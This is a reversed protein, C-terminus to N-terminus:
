KGVAESTHSALWQFFEDIKFIMWPVVAMGLVSSILTVPLTGWVSSNLIDNLENVILLFSGPLCQLFFELVAELAVETWNVLLSHEDLTPLMEYVHEGIYYIWNYAYQAVMPVLIVTAALHVVVRLLVNGFLFMMANQFQVKDLTGSNDADMKRFLAQCRERDLPKCAAPGLHMGLELHVLLLGLYLENEDVCGSKDLDTSEFATDCIKRFYHSNCLWETGRPRAQVFNPELPADDSQALINRSRNNDSKFAGKIPLKSSITALQQSLAHPMARLKAPVRTLRSPLSQTDPNESRQEKNTTSPQTTSALSSTSLGMRTSESNQEDHSTFSKDMSKQGGAKESDDNHRSSPSSPPTINTMITAQRIPLKRKSDSERSKDKRDKQGFLWRWGRKKKNPPNSRDTM